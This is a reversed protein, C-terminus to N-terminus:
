GAAAGDDRLQRGILEDLGVLHALRELRERDAEGHGPELLRVDGAESIEVLLHDRVRLAVLDVGEELRVGSEMVDEDARRAVAFQVLHVAEQEVLHTPVQRARKGQAAASISTSCAAIRSATSAPVDVYGCLQEGGM